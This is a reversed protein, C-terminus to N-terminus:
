QGSALGLGKGASLMDRMEGRNVRRGWSSGVQVKVEFGVLVVPLLLCARHLSM